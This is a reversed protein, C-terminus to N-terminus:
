AAVREVIPGLMGLYQVIAAKAEDFGRCIMVRYGRRELREKWDLQNPQVRGGARAKMEIYLGHFGVVPVSLFLDPYGARVGEAKLKAGVIPNRDGGNPIAALYKGIPECQWRTYDAWQILAVQEHHESM